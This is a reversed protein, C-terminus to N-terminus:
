IPSEEHSLFDVSHVEFDSDFAHERLLTFDNLLLAFTFKGSNEKRELSNNRLAAFRALLSSKFLIRVLVNRMRPCM